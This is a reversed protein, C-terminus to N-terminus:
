TGDHLVVSGRHGEHSGNVQKLDTTRYFLLSMARIGEHSGKVQLAWHQGEAGPRAESKAQEDHHGSVHPAVHKLANDSLYTQSISYFFHKTTKRTRCTM